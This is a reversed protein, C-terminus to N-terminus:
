RPDSSSDLTVSAAAAPGPGPARPRPQPGDFICSRCRHNLRAARRDSAAAAILRPYTRPAPAPAAAAPPHRITSNPLEVATGHAGQPASRYICRM